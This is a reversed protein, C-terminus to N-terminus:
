RFVNYITGIGQASAYMRYNKSMYYNYYSSSVLLIAIVISIISITINNMTPLRINNPNQPDYEIDITSQDFEKNLVMILSNNYEKGDVVYSALLSCKNMLSNNHYSQSCNLNKVDAKIYKYINKSTFFYSACIFLIIGITITIILGVVSRYYGLNASDEYIQNGLNEM